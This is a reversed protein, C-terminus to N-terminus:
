SVVKKAYRKATMDEVTLKYVYTRPVSQTGFPFDPNRYHAMLTRLADIKEEDPVTEIRGHGMVSEYYMTCRGKEEDLALQHECDMEFSVCPNKALLEVKKGEMASHFFLEAKTGCTKMGFNLPLIYVGEGDRLGLRCVDCKEMISIIEQFDTVERDRRRM